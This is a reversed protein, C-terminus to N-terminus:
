FNIKVFFKQPIAKILAMVAWWFAPVYVEEEKKDVAKVILTAVTAPKVWLLGKKLQATMPTDVFGPKITVVAM